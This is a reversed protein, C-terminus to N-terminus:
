NSHFADLFIRKEIFIYWQVASSVHLMKSVYDFGFPLFSLGSVDLKQLYFIYWYVEAYANDFQLFNCVQYSSSMISILLFSLSDLFM